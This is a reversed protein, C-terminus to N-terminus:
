AGPHWNEDFDRAFHFPGKGWTSERGTHQVLSPAHMYLPWRMEVLRATQMDHHEPGVRYLPLLYEVCERSFLRAQSGFVGFADGIKYHEAANTSKMPLCPDYFHALGLKGEVFPRWALVAARFHRAVLIDDELILFYDASGALAGRMIRVFGHFVKQPINEGPEENVLVEPECVRGWDCARWSALTEALSAERGACTLLHVSITPPNMNPDRVTASKLSAVPILPIPTPDFSYLSAQWQEPDICERFITLRFVAIIM